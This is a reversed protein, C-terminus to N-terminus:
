RGAKEQPPDNLRQRMVEYEHLYAMAEDDTFDKSKNMMHVIHAHEPTVTFRFSRRTKGAKVHATMQEHCNNRGIRQAAESLANFTQKSLPM